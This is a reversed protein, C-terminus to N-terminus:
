ISKKSNKITLTAGAIEESNNIDRKSIKVNFNDVSVSLSVSDSLTTNKPYFIIVPQIDYEAGQPHECQIAESDDIMTTASVKLTIAEDKKLSEVPIKLYVTSNNNFKSSGSTANKDTVVFASSNGSVSTTIQSNIFKGTLKVGDSIYYKGDSTLNMKKNSVSASLSGGSAAEKADLILKSIKKTVENSQGKYTGANFDFDSMFYPPITFYWM